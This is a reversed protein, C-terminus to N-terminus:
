KSKLRAQPSITIDLTKKIRGEGKRRARRESTTCDVLTTMWIWQADSYYFCGLSLSGTWDSMMMMMMVPQNQYSQEKKRENQAISLYKQLFFISVVASLFLGCQVYIWVWENRNKRARCEGIKKNRKRKRERERGSITSRLLRPLTRPMYFLEKEERERERERERSRRRRRRRRRGVTRKSSSDVVVVCACLLIIARRVFYLVYHLLLM